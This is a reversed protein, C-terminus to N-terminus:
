HRSFFHIAWNINVFFFNYEACEEAYSVYNAVRLVQEFQRAMDHHDLAM